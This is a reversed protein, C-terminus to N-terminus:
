VLADWAWSPASENWKHQAGRDKEWHIVTSYRMHMLNMHHEDAERLESADIKLVVRGNLYDSVGDVGFPTYNVIAGKKGVDEWVRGFSGDSHQVFDGFNPLYPEDIPEGEDGIVPFTMGPLLAVLDAKKADAPFDFGYGRLEAKLESVTAM